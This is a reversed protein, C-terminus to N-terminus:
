KRNLLWARYISHGVAPNSSSINSHSVESESVRWRECVLPMESKLSSSSTSASNDWLAPSASLLHRWAYNFRASTPQQPSLTAIIVDIFRCVILQIQRTSKAPPFFEKPEASWPLCFDPPVDRCVYFRRRLERHIVASHWSRAPKLDTISPGWPFESSIGHLGTEWQEHYPQWM